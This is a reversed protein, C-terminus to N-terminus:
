DLKHMVCTIILYGILVGLFGKLLTSQLPTNNFLDLSSEKEESVDPTNEPNALNVGDFSDGARMSSTIPIVNNTFSSFSNKLGDVYGEIQKEVYGTKIEESKPPALLTLTIVIILFAVSSYLYGRPHRNLFNLFEMM